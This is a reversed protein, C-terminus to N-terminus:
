EKNTYNIKKIELSNLCTKWEDYDCSNRGMNSMLCCLIINDKTYGKTNDIRDISPKFPHKHIETIVLPINFYGCMGNQKQFLELIYNSNFDILSSYKKNNRHCNKFLYIFWKDSRNNHYYKSARIVEKNINERRYRKSREKEKETNNDRYRKNRSLIKEKDRIYRKSNYEKEKEKDKYPM